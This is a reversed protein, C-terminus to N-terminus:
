VNKNAYILQESLKMTVNEYINVIYRPYIRWEGEGGEGRSLIIEALGMTKNEYL